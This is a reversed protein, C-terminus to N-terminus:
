AGFRHGPWPLAHDESLPPLSMFMREVRKAVLATKVKLLM